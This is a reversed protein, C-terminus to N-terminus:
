AAAPDAEAQRVYIAERVMMAVLVFLVAVAGLVKSFFLFYDPGVLAYTSVRAKDPAWQGRTQLPKRTVADMLQLRGTGEEVVQVLVTGDLPGATGADLVEVGVVNEFDIKQGVQIPAPANRVTVWTTDGTQLATAELPRVMYHNVGATFLNGASISLLYLAMIFSKMTLPAQKYSYELATISVLVEGATLIVYALIQWWVSVVHGAQIRSEIWAIVLFSAATIFLGAGIKRLPTVTCLRGVLPYVVYSFAPVMLLILLANVLQVQAPLLTFGFGLDKDMLDSRAQLSWTTGNSQDWLAWFFAVFAYILLLRAITALGTRSFTDRLWARGAPPVVAFRRRGFWFVITAIFMMAAPMGFAATPGYDRLLLPCLSISILSGANISLYFWSFAKEILHQNRSTFQDGVNTSVCPKIGGTGFAILFLGLAIMAPERALALVICGICYAVSFTMVTRFKGWFVDSVVAGLLPFFYSGSKFLSVWTTSQADGFHLSQVLYLALIANIGYYCFREAFENVVIYPIGAPMRAASAGPDLSAPNKM